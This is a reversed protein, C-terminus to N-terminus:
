VPTALPRESVRHRRRVRQRSRQSRPPRRAADVRDSGPEPEGRFQSTALRADVGVTHSADIRDGTRADRRTYIAGFYSQQLVRRKVRAVLFDEPIFQGDDAGTRVQLFGVDQGGMQGTFKTGFDIKQPTADASLGIRRSFFPQIQPGGASDSAFDFFTAGDLFFDRREPFFLSFRTLNVQRQDVETQAFDTNITLNARVGPTPNYFLDLGANAKQQSSGGNLAGFAESTLLGYPKVDLGLGQTVDTIGTVHGANTMRRLGQNRPWGMWISDENKRRVTRQFNFGWTDNNPDFNLTRIPIEIEITWGIESHRVRANWVGDWARNDGNIGFLSDAMLGSPNMEFFYGSREDLFTDITWMFRDNAPLFTAAASIGSGSTRNRTM